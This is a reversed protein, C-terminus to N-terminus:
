TWSPRPVDLASFSEKLNMLRASNYQSPQPIETSNVRHGVIDRAYAADLATKTKHSAVPWWSGDAKGIFEISENPWALTVTASAAGRLNLTVTVANTSSDAKEVVTRVGDVAANALTMARAAGSADVPNHKGAVLAGNASVLVAVTTQEASSYPLSTWAAAGNGVKTRRTDTEFGEEGDALVPNASQWNAATDRRKLIQQVM